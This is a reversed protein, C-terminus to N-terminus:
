LKSKLKNIEEKLELNEKKLNQIEKVCLATIEEYRLGWETSDSKPDGFACCLAYEDSSIDASKMAELVEQVIFGSHIRGSTGDNYKYLRPKLNDFMESYKDDINKISNKIKIDSSSIWNNGNTRWTGVINNYTEYPIIKQSTYHFADSTDIYLFSITNSLLETRVSLDEVYTYGSNTIGFSDDVTFKWSHADPSLNRIVTYYPLTSLFVSNQQGITGYILSPRDDFVGLKEINFGAITGSDAIIEGRITASNAYLNGNRDVRFVTTDNEITIEGSIVTVDGRIVAGNAYLIGDPTIGFYTTYENNYYIHWTYDSQDVDQETYVVYDGVHVITPSERGDSNILEYDQADPDYLDWKSSDFAGTVNDEKCKYYLAEHMCLDNTNYTVTTDYEEIVPRIIHYILGTYYGSLSTKSWNDPSDSPDVQEHVGDNLCRYYAFVNPAELTYVIDGTNYTEMYDWEPIVRMANLTDPATDDAFAYADNFEDTTIFRWYPVGYEGVDLVLNSGKEVSHTTPNIPDKLHTIGGSTSLNVVTWTPLNNIDMANVESATRSGIINYKNDRARVRVLSRVKPLIARPVSLDTSAPNGAIPYSAITGDPYLKLQPGLSIGDPGIYIGGTDTSNMSEIISYISNNQITFGGIKGSTAEISGVLTASNAYVNGDRDVRFTTGTEGNQISIEGSKVTIDGSVKIQGAELTQKIVANDAILMKAILTDLEFQTAEIIGTCKIRATTLEDIQARSLKANIAEVYDATVTKAVIATVQKEDTFGKDNSLSSINDGTQVSSSSITDSKEGLEIENYRDLLVDYTTSIVRLDVNVGLKDYIIKITDGLEVSEMNKYIVDETTSSLDAFSVQTNYKYQGIKNEKIYKLAKEKLSDETVEEDDEFEDTLDLNLIRNIKMQNALETDVRMVKDTLEVHTVSVSGEKLNKETPPIVESYYMILNSTISTKISGSFVIDGINHYTYDSDTSMKFYGDKKARVVLQPIGSWDIEIWEPSIVGQILTVQQDYLREIYKQKSTSWTFVKGNFEGESAIQIPSEDLPHYPEGGDDFSLWGDQLPKSGPVIYGKTFGEETTGVPNSSSEKHYYPYVYNYLLEYSLEHELDTMNKGYRIQANKDSGRRQVLYVNFKDFKIELKYTELISEDSGFLLARLNYYSTTAFTKSSNVDTFFKFNHKLVSNSELKSLTDKLMGESIPGIIIGNMDYSIHFAKIEVIGNLPRSISSIRFPQYDSLPSSKAFIIRDIKIEKYLSGTIPYKLDLEFTDNLVEKVSCETADTLVGIGLNDFKVEEEKYLIIM